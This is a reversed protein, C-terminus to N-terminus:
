ALLVFLVCSTFSCVTFYSPIKPITIKFQEPSEDQVNFCFEILSYWCCKILFLKIGALVFYANRGKRIALILVLFTTFDLLVHTMLMFDVVINKMRATYIMFVLSCRMTDATNYLKEFFFSRINGTNYLHLFVANLRIM